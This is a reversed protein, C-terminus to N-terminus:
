LIIYLSKRYYHKKECIACDDQDDIQCSIPYDLIKIAIYYLHNVYFYFQDYKDEQWVIVLAMQKVYCTEILKSKICQSIQSWITNTCVRRM